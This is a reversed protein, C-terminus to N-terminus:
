LTLCSPNMGTAVLTEQWPCFAIAKVAAGHNWTHKAGDSTLPEEIIARFGQQNYPGEVKNLEFLYATNDNGGTVFQEGDRRWALGCIQQSHVTIKRLQYMTAEQKTVANYLGWHVAYLYVNGMEDGVLLDDSLPSYGGGPNRATRQTITPKWAICAISASHPHDIRPVREDPHWLTLSGDIRGIALINNTKM